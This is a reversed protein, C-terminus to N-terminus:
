TSPLWNIKYINETHNFYFTTEYYRTRHFFPKFEKNYFTCHKSAINYQHVTCKYSNTNLTSHIGIITCITVDRGVHAETQFLHKSQLPVSTFDM